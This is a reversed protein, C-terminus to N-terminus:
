CRNLTRNRRVIMDLGLGILLLPWLEFVSHLSFQSLIIPYYFVYTVFGWVIGSFIKGKSFEKITIIVFILKWSMLNAPLNFGLMNFNNLLFLSGLAIIAIAFIISSSHNYKKM